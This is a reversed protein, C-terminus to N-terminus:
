TADTGGERRARAAGALDVIRVGSAVTISEGDTDDDLLEFVAPIEHYDLRLGGVILCEVQRVQEQLRQGEDILALAAAALDPRHSYVEEHAISALWGRLEELTPKM